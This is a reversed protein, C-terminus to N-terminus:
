AGLMTIIMNRMAKNQKTLKTVEDAIGSLSERFNNIEAHLQHIVENKKHLDNEHEKRILALKKNIVDEMNDPM